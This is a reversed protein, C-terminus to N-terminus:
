SKLSARFKEPNVFLLSIARLYEQIKVQAGRKAMNNSWQRKGQLAMENHKFPLTGDSDDYVMVKEGAVCTNDESAEIMYIMNFYWRDRSLDLSKCAFIDNLEGDADTVSRHLNKPYKAPRSFHRNFNSIFM